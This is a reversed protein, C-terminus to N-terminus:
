AFNNTDEKLEKEVDLINARTGGIIEGTTTDVFYIFYDIKDEEEKYKIEVAWVRRVREETLYYGDEVTVPENEYKNKDKERLYVDSNMQEIKEEVRINEIERNPEIEKDKAKAIEIAEEKTKIIENNEFKGRQIELHYLGNVTPVFDVSIKEYPNILDGYKKYYTAYWIYSSKEDGMNGGLKLLEYDGEIDPLYKKFLENAVEKAENGTIGYNEPLKYNWSPISIYKLEGLKQM